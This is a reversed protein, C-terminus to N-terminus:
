FVTPVIESLIKAFFKECIPTITSDEPALSTSVVSPTSSGNLFTGPTLNYNFIRLTYSDSLAIFPRLKEVSELGHVGGRIHGPSLLHHLSSVALSAEAARGVLMFQRLRFVFTSYLSLPNNFPASTFLSIFVM